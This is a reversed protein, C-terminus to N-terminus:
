RIKELPIVTAHQRDYDSTNDTKKDFIVEKRLWLALKMLVTYMVHKFSLYNHKNLQVELGKYFHLFILFYKSLM